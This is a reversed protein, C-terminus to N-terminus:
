FKSDKAEFTFSSSDSNIKTKELVKTETEPAKKTLRAVVLDMVTRRAVMTHRWPGDKNSKQNEMKYGGYFYKSADRGVVADILFKGGPHRSSYRGVDLIL